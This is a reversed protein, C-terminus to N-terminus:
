VQEVCGGIGSVRSKMPNESPKSSWFDYTNEGDTRGLIWPINKHGNKEHKWLLNRSTELPSKQVNGFSVEPHKWFRVISNVRLLVCGLRCFLRGGANCACWGNSWGASGPHLAMDREKLLALCSGKLRTNFSPSLNWDLKVASIVKLLLLPWGAFAFRFAIM